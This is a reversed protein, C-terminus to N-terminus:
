NNQTSAYKPYPNKNSTTHIDNGGATSQLHLDIKVVRVESKPRTKHYQMLQTTLFIIATLNNPACKNELVYSKGFLYELTM